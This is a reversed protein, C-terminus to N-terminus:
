EGLKTRETKRDEADRTIKIEVKTNALEKITRKFIVEAEKPLNLMENGTMGFSTVQGKEDRTFYV